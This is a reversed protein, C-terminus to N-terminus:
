SSHLSFCLLRQAARAAADLCLKTKLKTARLEVLGSLAVTTCMFKYLTLEATLNM